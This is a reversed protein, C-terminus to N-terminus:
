RKSQWAIYTYACVCLRMRCLTGQYLSGRKKTCPHFRMPTAICFVGKINNMLVTRMDLLMTFRTKKCYIKGVEQCNKKCAKRGLEKSSKMSM